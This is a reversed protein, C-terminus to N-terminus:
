VPEGGSRCAGNAAVSPSVCPTPGLAAPSGCAFALPRPHKLKRLFELEKGVSEPHEEVSLSSVEGTDPRAIGRAYFIDCAHAFVRRWGTVRALRFNDLDPFTSRASRESLLSGFGAITMLGQDCALGTFDDDLEAGHPLARPAAAGGLRPGLTM